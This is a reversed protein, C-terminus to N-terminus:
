SKADECLSTTEGYQEKYTKKLCQSPSNTNFNHAEKTKMMKKIRMVKMISKTTIIWPSILGM